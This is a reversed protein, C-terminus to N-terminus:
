KKEKCYWGKLRPLSELVLKIQTKSVNTMDQILVILARMTLGGDLLKQSADAVEVISKALLETSEPAIDDKKVKIM